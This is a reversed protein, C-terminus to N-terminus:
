LSSPFSENESNESKIFAKPFWNAASLTLTLQQVADINAVKERHKMQLVWLSLNNETDSNHKPRSNIYPYKNHVLMCVYTSAHMNTQNCIYICICSTCMLAFHTICCVLMCVHFFNISMHLSLLFTVQKLRHLWGRPYCPESGDLFIIIRLKFCTVPFIRCWYIYIIKMSKLHKTNFTLDHAGRAIVM